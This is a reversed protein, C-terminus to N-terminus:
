INPPYFNALIAKSKGFKSIKEVGFSKWTAICYYSEKFHLHQGRTLHALGKYPNNDM